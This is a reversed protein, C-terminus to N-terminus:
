QEVLAYLPVKITPQDPNNTHIVVDGKISGVPATEKIAATLVYEKGEVKPRTEISIFDFPNDVKEIKLPEASVTSVTISKKAGQGKKLLGLFFMDPFVEVDGKINATVPIEVKPEKPHNTQVTVKGKFEGIPLGPKLSLIVQYGPHEKGEAAKQALAATLFPSDSVASEVKLSGDGPDRVYIERSPNERLRVDGFNVSRASVLVKDPKIGVGVEIQVLPSIPDNSRIYLDKTQPGQFGETDFVLKIQGRGNPPILKESVEATTCTCTSSVSYIALHLNGVNRFEITREVKAGEDVLGLNCSYESFRIDPGGTQVKPFSNKDKSVLLAFGSYLAKFTDLPVSLDEKAPDTVKRSPDTVALGDAGNEVVVFHSGWLHAIAPIRIKALEDVGIKMGVAHLKKKEATKYLGALTAGNEDKGSLRALEDLDAKVGLKQCILLLCKPGCMVDPPNKGSGCTSCGAAYAPHPLLIAAAFVMLCLTLLPRKM